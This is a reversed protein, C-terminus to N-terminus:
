VLIDLNAGTRKQKRIGAKEKKIVELLTKFDTDNLCIMGDKSAAIIEELEEKKKEARERTREVLRESIKRREERLRDSMNLMYDNKVCSIERYDGNEDIYSHRYVVNRGNPNHIGGMSKPQPIRGKMLGQKKQLEERKKEVREKTKEMLKESNKRREERLKDSLNLMYDNRVRSIQRYEGNEDIYSHHYVVSWGSAKYMGDIFKTISEIGKMLEKIEQEKEPNNQMEELLKPNITLTRGKKMPSFGNGVGCKTAPVLKTLENMYETTSKVPRDGTTQLTRETEKQHTRDATSSGAMEQTVYSNYNNTIEMAM